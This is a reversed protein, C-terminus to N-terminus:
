YESFLSVYEIIALKGHHGIPRKILVMAASFSGGRILLEASRGEPDIVILSEKQSEPNYPGSTKEFWKSSLEARKGM